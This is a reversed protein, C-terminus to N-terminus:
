YYITCVQQFRLLDLFGSLIQAFGGFVVGVPGLGTSISGHWHVHVVASIFTVTAFAFLGLPAPDAIQFHSGSPFM